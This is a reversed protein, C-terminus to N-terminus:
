QDPTSSIFRKNKTESGILCVQLQAAVNQSNLHAKTNKDYKKNFLCSEKRSKNRRTRVQIIKKKKCECHHTKKEGDSQILAARASKQVLPFM